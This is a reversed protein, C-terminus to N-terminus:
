RIGLAAAMRCGSFEHFADQNIRASEVGGDEEVVQTGCALGYMCERDVIPLAMAALERMCGLDAFGDIHRMLGGVERRNLWQEGAAAQSRGFDFDGFAVVGLFRHFGGDHRISVHNQEGDGGSMSEGNASILDGVGCVAAVMRDVGIAAVFKGVGHGFGDSETIPVRDLETAGEDIPAFGVDHAVAGFEVKGELFGPGAIFAARDVASAAAGADFTAFSEVEGADGVWGGIGVICGADGGQAGVVPPQLGEAYAGAVGAPWSLLGDARM